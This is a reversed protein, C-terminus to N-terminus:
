KKAKNQRVYKELKRFQDDVFELCILTGVLAFIIIIALEGLIPIMITLRIADTDKDGDLGLEYKANCGFIILRSILYSVLYLVICVVVTM